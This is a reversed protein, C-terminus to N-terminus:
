RRCCNRNRYLVAPEHQWHEHREAAYTELPPHFGAAVGIDGDDRRRFPIREGIMAPLLVLFWNLAISLFSTPGLTQQLLGEEFGNDILRRNKPQYM